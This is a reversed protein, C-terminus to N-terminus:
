FGVLNLRWLWLNTRKSLKRWNIVSWYFNSGILPDIENISGLDALQLDKLYTLCTKAFNILQNKVHLCIFSTSLAGIPFTQESENKLNFLVKKLTSQKWNKNRFTSIFINKKFISAFDLISQTRQSLCSRQFSQDLLSEVTVEKKNLPNALVIEATQLLISAM